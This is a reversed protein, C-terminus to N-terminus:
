LIRAHIEIRSRNHSPRCELIFQDNEDDEDNELEGAISEKIAGKLEDSAGEKLQAIVARTLSNKLGDLDCPQTVVIVEDADDFRALM